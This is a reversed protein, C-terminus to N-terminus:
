LEEEIGCVEAIRKCVQECAHSTENNGIEVNNCKESIYRLTLWRLM